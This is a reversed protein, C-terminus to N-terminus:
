LNLLVRTTDALFKCQVIIKLCFSMSYVTEKYNITANRLGRGGAARNQQGGELNTNYM